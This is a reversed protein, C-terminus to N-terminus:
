GAAAEGGALEVATLAGSLLEEAVDDV